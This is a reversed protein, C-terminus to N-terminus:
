GTVVDAGSVLRIPGDVTSSDMCGALDDFEGIHFLQYDLYHAKLQGNCLDTFWRIALGNAPFFCPPSFSGAARDFVAYAQVIM